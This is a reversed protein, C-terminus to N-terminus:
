FIVIHNNSELKRQESTLSKVEISNKKFYFICNQTPKRDTLTSPITSIQNENMSLYELHVISELAMPVNTFLNHDLILSNLYKMKGIGDSISDLRNQQFNLYIINPFDYIMEPIRELHLNVLSLLIIKGDVALFHNPFKTAPFTEGDLSFEPDLKETDQDETPIIRVIKRGIIKELNELRDQEESLLASNIREKFRRINEKNSTAIEKEKETRIKQWDEHKQHPLIEVYKKDPRGKKDWEIANDILYDTCDLDAKIKERDLGNELHNLVRLYRQQRAAQQIERQVKRDSPNLNPFKNADVALITNLSPHNIESIPTSEHCKPGLGMAIRKVFDMISQVDGLKTKSKAFFLVRENDFDRVLGILLQRNQGVVWSDGQTSAILHKRSLDRMKYIVNDLNFTIMEAPIEKVSGEIKDWQQVLSLITDTEHWLETKYHVQNRYVVLFAEIENSQEM